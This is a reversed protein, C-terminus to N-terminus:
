LTKRGGGINGRCCLLILLSLMLINHLIEDSIHTPTECEQM